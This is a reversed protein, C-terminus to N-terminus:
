ETLKTVFAPSIDGELLFRQSGSNNSRFSLAGEKGGVGGGDDSLGDVPM